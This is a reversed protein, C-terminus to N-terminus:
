LKILERNDFFYLYMERVPKGHIQELARRYWYVQNQYHEVRKELNYETIRDSKYDVLILGDNEEFYLDIVGQVLLNEGSINEGSIVENAPCILNFPAERYVRSASKIRQGLPSNVFVQVAELDVSEAELATLIERDVLIELLSSLSDLAGDMNTLSLHQMVKHMATGRQQANLRPVPDVFQPQSVM